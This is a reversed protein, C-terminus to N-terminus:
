NSRLNDFIEQMIQKFSELKEATNLGEDFPLTPRRDVKEELFPDNMLNNLSSLTSQRQQKHDYPPHKMIYELQVQAAPQKSYAWVSFVTVSDSNIQIRAHFGPTIRGGFAVDDAESLAWRYLDRAILANHEEGPLQELYKFFNDEDPKPSLAAPQKSQKKDAEIRKMERRIAVILKKVGQDKDQRFDTFQRNILHLPLPMDELIAIFLPKRLDMALLTERECWESDRSQKSLLIVFISCERVAKEISRLWLDGSKISDLDVWTEFGADTLHDAVFRTVDNDRSSHSIFIYPM